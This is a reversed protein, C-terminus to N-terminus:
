VDTTAHSFITHVISARQYSRSELASVVGLAVEHMALIAANAYDDFALKTAITMPKGHAIKNRRAVLQHLFYRQNQINDCELNLANLWSLLLDPWLNSTEALNELVAVEDFKDNLGDMFNTFLESQNEAKKLELYFKKMSHVAIKWTLDKRKLKRKNLAEVYIGICFKCFGEYHAYLIAVNARLLTQEQDSNTTTQLLQKRMIALEQDRWKLDKEIEKTFHEAFVNKNM